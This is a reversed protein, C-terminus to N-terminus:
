RAVMEALLPLLSFSKLVPVKQWLDVRECSGNLQDYKGLKRTCRSLCLSFAQNSDLIKGQYYKDEGHKM